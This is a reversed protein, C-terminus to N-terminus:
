VGGIYNAVAQLFEKRRPRSIALEDPGVQVSAKGLRQVHRLNVLYCQNCKAFGKGELAKEAARLSDWVEIVGRETHYSLRHGAVELYYISDTSLRIQEEGDMVFVYQSRSSEIRRCWERMKCAFLEYSLPKLIYDSAQVAYGRIAYGSMNTLFVLLVDRDKERLREAATLGDMRQMEIDLFVLDFGSGYDRILDEGDVFATVDLQIGSEEQFRHFLALTRKREAANDEAIAIKM